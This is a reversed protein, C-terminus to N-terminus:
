SNAVLDTLPEVVAYFGSLPEYRLHNLNGAGIELTTVNTAAKAVDEAVKRHMWSETVKSLFSAPSAGARNQQYHATYIARYAQPLEPRRKPFRSLIAHDHQMM